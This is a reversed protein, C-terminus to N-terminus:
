MEFTLMFAYALYNAIEKVNDWFQPHNRPRVSLIASARIRNILFFYFYEISQNWLFVLMLSVEDTLQFTIMTKKKKKVELQVRHWVKKFSRPQRAVLVIM